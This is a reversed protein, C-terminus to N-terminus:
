QPDLQLDAAANARSKLSSDLQHFLEVRMTLYAALSVVAVAFAATAAALVSVRARLTPAAVGHLKDAFRGVPAPSIVVAARAVLLRRRSRHPDTPTRRRSRAQPAPVRRVGGAFQGHDPLR